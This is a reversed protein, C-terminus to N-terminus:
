LHTQIKNVLKSVVLEPEFHEKLTNFGGVGIRNRLTKDCLALKILEAMEKPTEALLANKEHVIEPMANACDKFAIVCCGLSWAHLFRTHGVKFDYRNNTILFLSSSLIEADLDDVFGRMKINPHNLIQAVYPKPTGGGFIHIEYENRDITKDLEPLVEKGLALFGLTNGTASVNGVGGVIKGHKKYGVGRKYKSTLNLNTPWMNQLYCAKVGKNAYYLADNKAVDAVLDFKKLTALHARALLNRKLFFKSKSFFSRIGNQRDSFRDLIEQQANFVKNDPNGHYAYRLKGLNAAANLGVETWITLVIDIDKDKLQISNRLSDHGILTAEPSFIFDKAFKLPNQRPPQPPLVAVPDLFEVGSSKLEEIEPLADDPVGTVEKNLYLFSLNFRKLKVLETIMSHTVVNAAEKHSRIHPWVSSIIMLNQRHNKGNM